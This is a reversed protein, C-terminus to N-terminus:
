GLFNYAHQSQRHTVNNVRETFVLYYLNLCVLFQLFKYSFNSLFIHSFPIVHPKAVTIWLAKYCYEAFLHSCVTQANCTVWSVFQTRPWWWIANPEKSINICIVRPVTHRICCLFYGERCAARVRIWNERSEFASWANEEYYLLTTNFKVLVCQLPYLLPTSLKYHIKHLRQSYAFLGQRKKYTCRWWRKTTFARLKYFIWIGWIIVANKWM